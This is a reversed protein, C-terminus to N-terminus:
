NKKKLRNFWIGVFTLIVLLSVSILTLISGKKIITPEFKFEILHNGAPIKMARLVYNVRIYPTLKGDIYANWGNKYYMESFVVQQETKSEYDYKLYNPQYEVLDITALSDRSQLNFAIKNADEQRIVASKKTNINRLALMEGNANQVIKLSDVFWANGNIQDNEMVQIQKAEDPLIIYKTNLMNLVEMNNQAIHFDYLEQYRGPKAAHYGGISKHFYSTSGDNMSNVTFNAVRYHSKDKRIEKDASSEQFPKEVQKASVFNDKNVYNRDISGLDVIILTIFTAIVWDKKIKDKLYFWLTAASIGVFFFSRFSDSTLMAKRDLILAESIGSLMSDFYADNLGNFSFLSRGFLAFFIAIGGTIYFSKLLANQKLEKTEENKLFQQLGLIALLPISLEIIVQISSVARFKNYLPIYDIFFNTLVGFNKGWSLLLAFISATILANKLPGKLLFLGVIFLFIVVAGLYAPAAVIPQTGWYTPANNVFDRAQLPDIKDNLFEYLHSDTGLKENNAGGMFRPIFLNLTEVIGYSYETIYDKTLGNSIEKPTGEPTITLESKSRTSFDAYEKTALLSTANMGVALIAAVTLIGITKFFTKLQKTKFAEILYFLGIFLVLFLLYYTMQIHSAQIELALALSTLLFGFLYKRQFTWLIGGLVMPMYAIAHAKANHGVGLIIIFYTSFGFALSGLIALKFDVKLVSLLIFFGLFYLFLYDAPRPLFRLLDDLKKIYDHPYYSSLQYTPMGGFAANTWYPEADNAKRFDVVEKSMGIFQQIDSQVIKKGELVPYFYVLSVIVFTAIAIGYPTFKKFDIM